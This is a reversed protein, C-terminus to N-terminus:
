LVESEQEIWLRRRAVSSRRDNWFESFLREDVALAAHSWLGFLSGPDDSACVRVLGLADVACVEVPDLGDAEIVPWLAKVIELASIQCPPDLVPLSLRWLRERGYPTAVAAKYIYTERLEQMLALVADQVTLSPDVERVTVIDPDPSSFRLWLAFDLQM